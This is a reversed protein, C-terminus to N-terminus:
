NPENKGTGFSLHNTAPKGPELGTLTSYQIQTPWLLLCTKEYYKPKEYLKNMGSIAGCNDGDLMWHQYLLGVFPKLLLPSTKGGALHFPPLKSAPGHVSRFDSQTIM